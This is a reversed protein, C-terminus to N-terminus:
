AGIQDDFVRAGQAAWQLAPGPRLSDSITSMFSCLVCDFMMGCMCAGRSLSCPEAQTRPCFDECHFTLM